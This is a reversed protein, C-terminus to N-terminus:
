SEHFRFSSMTHLIIRHILSHNQMELKGSLLKRPYNFSFNSTEQAGETYKHKFRIFCYSKLTLNFVNQPIKITLGCNQKCEVPVWDMARRTTLFEM